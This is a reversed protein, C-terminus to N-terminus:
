PRDGKTSGQDGGQQKKWMEYIVPLYPTNEGAKLRESIDYMRKDRDRNLKKIRWQCYCNTVMECIMYVAFLLMVAFLVWLLCIVVTTM